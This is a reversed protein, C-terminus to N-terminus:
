IKYIKNKNEKLILYKNLKNNLQYSEIAKCIAKNTELGSWCPLSCESDIGILMSSELSYPLWNNLDGNFKSEYFINTMDTVNYVNWKSINGNFNSNFFLEEMDTIQSVDIHNLDCNNGHLEVEDKILKLLHEKDKAIIIEKKM